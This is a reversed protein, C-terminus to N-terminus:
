KGRARARRKSMADRRAAARDMTLDFGRSETRRDQSQGADKLAGPLWSAFVAAVRDVLQQERLRLDNGNPLTMDTLTLGGAARALYWIGLVASIAALTTVGKVVWDMPSPLKDVTTLGGAFTVTGFVGLIGAMLGSWKAATTQVAKLQGRRLQELRSEWYAIEDANTTM